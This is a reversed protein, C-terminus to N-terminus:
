KEDGCDGGNRFEISASSRAPFYNARPGKLTESGAPPPFLFPARASTIGWIHIYNARTPSPSYPRGSFARMRFASLVALPAARAPDVAAMITNSESVLQWRYHIDRFTEMRREKGCRSLSM